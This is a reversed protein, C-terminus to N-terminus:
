YDLGRLAMANQHDPNVWLSIQDLQEGTAPDALGQGSVKLLHWTSTVFM